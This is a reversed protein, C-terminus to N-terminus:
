DNKGDLVLTKRKSDLAESYTDYLARYYITDSKARNYKTSNRLWLSM